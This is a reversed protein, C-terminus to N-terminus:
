CFELIDIEKATEAKYLKSHMKLLELLLKTQENCRSKGETKKSMPFVERGEVVSKLVAMEEHIAKKLDPITTGWDTLVNKSANYEAYHPYSSMLSFYDANTKLSMLPDLIKTIAMWEADYSIKLDKMQKVNMEKKDEIDKKESLGGKLEEKGNVEENATGKDEQKNLIPKEVDIKYEDTMIWDEAVNSAVKKRRLDIHELTPENWYPIETVSVSGDKGKELRLPKFWVRKPLPKDLALFETREGSEHKVTAKYYKHLHASLWVGPKLKNLLYGTIPNGATGAIIEDAFAPWYKALSLYDGHKVASSPWDHSMMVDIKEQILSLKLAEYERIHYISRKDNESLPFAEFNGRRYNKGNYIGSIGAIRFGGVQVVGSRGLYYINEAVWGGYYLEALYNSAEHNGGVFVTLYPAKKEGSWYKKFDGMKRYKPPCALSKLDSESRVSQFDGNSLILDIKVNSTEEIKRVSEYLLDFEGHLCGVSVINLTKGTDMVIESRDRICM